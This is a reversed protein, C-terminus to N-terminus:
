LLVAAPHEDGSQGMPISGDGPFRREHKMGQALSGLRMFNQFRRALM